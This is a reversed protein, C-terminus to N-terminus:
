HVWNGDETVPQVDCQMSDIAAAIESVAWEEDDIELRYEPWNWGSRYIMYPTPWRNDPDTRALRAILRPLRGAPDDPVSTSESIEAPVFDSVWPQQDTEMLCADTGDLRTQIGYDDQIRQCLRRRQDIEGGALAISAPARTLHEYLDGLTWGFRPDRWDPAVDVAPALVFTRATYRPHPLKLQLTEGVFDGYLVIDLDLSRRDWRQKRVRGLDIEIAQLLALLEATSYRTEIVATSNLFAGQGGPGGIPPTEFLRACEISM